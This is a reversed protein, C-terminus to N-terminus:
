KGFRVLRCGGRWHRSLYDWTRHWKVGHWYLCMVYIYGFSNRRVTGTFVLCFERWEVPIKDKQVLMLEAHLQGARTGRKEAGEKARELMTYGVVSSEGERLFTDLFLKSKGKLAVDEVLNGENETRKGFQFDSPPQELIMTPLAPLLIDTQTM